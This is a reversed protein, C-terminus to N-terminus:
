DLAARYIGAIRGGARIKAQARRKSSPLHRGALVLVIVAHHPLVSSLNALMADVEVGDQPSSGQWYTQRGYPLDTIVLDISAGEVAQALTSVDFIDARRARVEIPDSSRVRAQLRDAAALALAHSDKGFRDSLKAIEARRATLGHKTLLALNKEALALAAPDIDTAIIEGVQEQHLLSITTVLQGSGCCPDWVTLPERRDLVRVAREFLESGLRVPFGPYGPASRLVM